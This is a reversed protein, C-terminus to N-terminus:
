SPSRRSCRRTSRTRAAPRPQACRLSVLLRCSGYGGSARGGRHVAEDEHGTPGSTGFCVCLLERLVEDAPEVAARTPARPARAHFPHNLACTHTAGNEDVDRTTTNRVCRCPGTSSLPPAAPRHTPRRSRRSSWLLASCRHIRQHAPAKAFGGRGDTGTAGAGHFWHTVARGTRLLGRRRFVDEGAVRGSGRPVSGGGLGKRM